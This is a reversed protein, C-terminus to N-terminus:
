MNFTPMRLQLHGYKTYVERLGLVKMIIRGPVVNLSVNHLMETCVCLCLVASHGNRKRDSFILDMAGAM